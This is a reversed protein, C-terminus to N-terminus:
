KGAQEALLEGIILDWWPRYFGAIKFRLVHDADFIYNQPVYNNFQFDAMASPSDVRPDDNIQPALIQADRNGFFDPHEPPVAYHYLTWNELDEDDVITGYPDELAMSLVQVDEGYDAQLTDLQPAEADCPPCWMTMSTIVLIKGAFESRTFDRYTGTAKVPPDAQFGRKTFDGLTSGIAGQLGREIKYIFSVHNSENDDLDTVWIEIKHTGETLMDDDELVLGIYQDSAKGFKGIEDSLDSEEPDGNDLSLYMKGGGLNEDDDRWGAYFAVREFDPDFANGVTWVFSEDVYDWFLDFAPNSAWIYTKENRLLPIGEDDDDDADDDDADDDDADDDDDDDDDDDGSVGFCAGLAACDGAQAACGVTADDMSGLSDLCGDMDGIALASAVDPCNTMKDCATQADASSSDDDDDDDDDDDGCGCGAAAVLSFSSITVLLFLLFLRTRAHESRDTM